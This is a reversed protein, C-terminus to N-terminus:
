AVSYEEASVVVHEEVVIVPVDQSFAGSIPQNWGGIDVRLLRRDEQSGLGGCEVVEPSFSLSLLFM